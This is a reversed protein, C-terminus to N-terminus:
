VISRVDERAHSDDRGTVSSASEKNESYQVSKEPADNGGDEGQQEDPSDNSRSPHGDIM